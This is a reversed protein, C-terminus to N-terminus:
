AETLHGYEIIERVRSIPLALAVKMCRFSLHQGAGSVVGDLLGAQEILEAM